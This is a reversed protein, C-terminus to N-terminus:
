RSLDEQRAPKQPDYPIAFTRGPTDVFHEPWEFKKMFKEELDGPM